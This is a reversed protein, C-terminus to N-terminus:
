TARVVRATCSAIVAKTVIDEGAGGSGSGPQCSFMGLQFYAEVSWLSNVANIYHGSYNGM